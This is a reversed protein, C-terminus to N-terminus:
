LVCLSKSMDHPAVMMDVGVVVMVEVPALVVALLPGGGPPPLPGPPLGPPPASGGTGGTGGATGTVGAVDTGM